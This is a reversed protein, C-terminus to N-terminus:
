PDAPKGEQWGKEVVQEWGAEKQGLLAWLPCWHKICRHAQVAKLAQTGSLHPIRSSQRPVPLSKKASQNFTVEKALACESGQHGEAGGESSPLAVGGGSLWSRPHWRVTNFRTSVTKRTSLPLHGQLGSNFKRSSNKSGKGLFIQMQEAVQRCAEPLCPDRRIQIAGADLLIALM